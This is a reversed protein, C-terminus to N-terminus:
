PYWDTGDRGKMRHVGKESADKCWAYTFKCMGEHRRLQEQTQADRNALNNKMEQVMKNLGSIRRDHIMGLLAILKTHEGEIMRKIWARDAGFPFRNFYAEMDANSIESTLMTKKHTKTTSSSSGATTASAAIPPHPDTGANSAATYDDGSSESDEETDSVLTPEPDCVVKQRKRFPM